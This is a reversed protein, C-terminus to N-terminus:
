VAKFAAIGAGITLVVGVLAVTIAVPAFTLAVPHGPDFALVVATGAFPTYVLAAAAGLRDRRRAWRRRAVYSAYHKSTM